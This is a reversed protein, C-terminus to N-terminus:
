HVGDRSSCLVTIADKTCKVGDWSTSYTFYRLTSNKQQNNKKIVVYTTRPTEIDCCGASVNQHTYPHLYVYIHM